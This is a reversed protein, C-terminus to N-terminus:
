SNLNQFGRRKRRPLKSVSGAAYNLFHTPHWGIDYIKRIAQAAAKPMAANVFTDAGAARLSIIQSDVTPDLLEYSEAGALMEKGRGGLGERLGKLLQKGFNDNLYLVGIKAKPHQALIYRAYLAGEIYANQHFGM